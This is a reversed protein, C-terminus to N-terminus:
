QDGGSHHPLHLYRSAEALNHLAPLRALKEQWVEIDRRWGRIFSLCSLPTIEALRKRAQSLSALAATAAQADQEALLLRGTIKDILRSRCELADRWYSATADNVSGGQHLLGYLGEAIVDGFEEAAARRPRAFPQYDVQSLSGAVTLSRRQVAEFLFLWDENYIPPFPTDSRAVDIVLASGGPFVDQRGGTLRYAHCVVSNDPYHPIAFAAAQYGSTLAVAQLVGDATLDRIDDDLFMATRWGCIRSLLLGANRKRSIDIHSGPEYANETHRSTELPLLNHDLARPLYTILTEHCTGACAQRAAAAQVPTTCLIVLSCGIDAALKVAPGLSWPRITPIILGDLRRPPDTCPQYASRDSAVPQQLLSAHSAVHCANNANPDPAM